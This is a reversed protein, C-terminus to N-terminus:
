DGAGSRLPPYVWRTKPASQEVPERGRSPRTWEGGATTGAQQWGSARLSAGNEGPLTYTVFRTYGLAQGARRLAGYVVSCANPYGDSAIRTIELTTGDQLMRASPRGATGVCRIVGDNDVLAVRIIDGRPPSLHRHTSKIWAFAARQTIPILKM